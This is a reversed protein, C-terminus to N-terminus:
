PLAKITASLFALADTQGTKDDAIIHCLYQGKRSDTTYEAVLKLNERSEDGLTTTLATEDGTATAKYAAQAGSSDTQDFLWVEIKYTTKTASAYVVRTMCKFKNYEYKTSGGDILVQLTKGDAAVKSSEQKFDGVKSDAPVYATTGCTAAGQDVASTDTSTKADKKGGSDDSCGAAALTAFLALWLLVNPGLPRHNM